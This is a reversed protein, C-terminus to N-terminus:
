RTEIVIKAQSVGALAQVHRVCARCELLSGWDPSGKVQLALQLQELASEKRAKTVNILDLRSLNASIEEVM